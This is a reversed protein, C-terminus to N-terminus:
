QSWIFHIKAFARSNDMMTVGSLYQQLQNGTYLSLRVHYIEFKECVRGLNSLLVDTNM